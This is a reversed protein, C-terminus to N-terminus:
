VTPLRLLAPDTALGTGGVGVSGNVTVNTIQLTNNGNGEFLIGYNEAAGLPITDARGPTGAFALVVVSASLVGSLKAVSRLSVKRVRARCSSKQVRPWGQQVADSLRPQPDIPMKQVANPFGARMASGM